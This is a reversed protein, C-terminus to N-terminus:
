EITVLPSGPNVFDGVSVHLEGIRGATPALVPQIMKMSELTLLEQEVVVASGISVHIAQVLGPWDTLVQM